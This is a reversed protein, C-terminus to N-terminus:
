GKHKRYRIKELFDLFFFSVVRMRMAQFEKDRRRHTSFPDFTSQEAPEALYRGCEAQATKVVKTCQEPRAM